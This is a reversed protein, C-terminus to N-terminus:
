PQVGWRRLGASGRSTLQLARSDRVPAVWRQEALRDLLAAGLAGALHPKRESWDLCRRALPRRQAALRSVDITAAPSALKRQM